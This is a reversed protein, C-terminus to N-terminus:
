AALLTTFAHEYFGDLNVVLSAIDCRADAVIRNQEVPAGSPVSPGSGASVRENLCGISPTRTAVTGRRKQTHTKYYQELYM